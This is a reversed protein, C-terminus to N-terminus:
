AAAQREMVEDPPPLTVAGVDGEEDQDGLASGAGDESGDPEDPGDGAPTSDRALDDARRKALDKQEDDTLGFCAAPHM